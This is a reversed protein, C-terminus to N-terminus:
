CTSKTQKNVSKRPSTRRRLNRSRGWPTPSGGPLETFATAHSRGVICERSSECFGVCERAVFERGVVSVEFNYRSICRDGVAIHSLYQRPSRVQDKNLLDIDKFEKILKEIGMRDELLKEATIKGAKSMRSVRILANSTSCSHRIADDGWSHWRPEPIICFTFWATFFERGTGTAILFTM